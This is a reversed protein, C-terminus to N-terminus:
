ETLYNTNVYGQIGLRPSYVLIYSRGDGGAITSGILQVDDGNYLEGLINTDDYYAASRIALYGAEIYAVQRWSDDYFRRDNGGTVNKLEQENVKTFDAM